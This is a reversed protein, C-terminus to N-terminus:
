DGEGIEVSEVVTAPTPSIEKIVTYPTFTGVSKITVPTFNIDSDQGETVKLVGDEVELKTARAEKNVTVQYATVPEIDLSAADGTTWSVSGVVNTTDVNLKGTGSADSGVVKWGGNGDDLSPIYALRIVSNASFQNTVPEDKHSLYVKKSGEDGLSLYVDGESACDVKLHYDIILNDYSTYSDIGEPLNGKWANGQSHTSEILFVRSDRMYYDVDKYEIKNYNNAM